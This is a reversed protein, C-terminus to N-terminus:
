GINEVDSRNSSNTARSEGGGIGRRKIELNIFYEEIELIYVFSIELPNGASCWNKLNTKERQKCKGTKSVSDKRFRFASSSKSKM